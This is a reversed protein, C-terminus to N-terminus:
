ECRPPTTTILIEPFVTVVFNVYQLENVLDFVNQPARPTITTHYMKGTLFGPGTRLFRLGNAEFLSDITEGPTADTFEFYVVGSPDQFGNEFIGFSYEVLSDTGFTCYGSKGYPTFFYEARKTSPVCMIAFLQTDISSIGLIRMGYRKATQQVLATDRVWPYFKAFVQSPYIELTDSYRDPEYYM